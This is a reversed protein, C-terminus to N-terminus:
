IYTLLHKAIIAAADPRYFSQASQSMKDYLEKNGLISKIKDIILGGLMNEESMMQAAGIEMYIRANEKQHDKSSRDLPVLIAPKAFAALEFLSGSGARSIVIDAATLADALDKDFFPRFVYRDKEMDSWDKTLFEIEKKYSDYNLVGVQHLIQFENLLKDLNEFIFDNLKEAGQSGGLILILPDTLNLGFGKKASEKAVADDSGLTARQDLLSQRVPNGSIDINKNSFYEIAPSFALFIQSAMKGSIANTLGPISDSEHIVVPIRYWRGVLVVALAGPGGKSFIADPMFWFFKWMLQPISFMFKFGDIINLVSWYRRLKSSLVPVFEIDNDVIDQAYSYAAGFYRMDLALGFSATQRKLEQAVALLPYIHGGTGGGTLLIRLKKM